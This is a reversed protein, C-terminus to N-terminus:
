SKSHNIGFVASSQRILNEFYKNKYFLKKKKLDKKCIHIKKKSLHNEQEKRFPRVYLM